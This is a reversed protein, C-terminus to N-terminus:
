LRSFYLSLRPFFVFFSLFFFSHFPLVLFISHISFILLSYVDSILFFSIFRWFLRGVWVFFTRYYYTVSIVNVLCSIWTNRDSQRTFGDESAQSDSPTASASPEEEPIGADNHAENGDDINGTNTTLETSLSVTSSGSDAYTSEHQSQQSATTSCIGSDVVATEVASMLESDTCESQENADLAENSNNNESCDAALLESDTCDVDINQVINEENKEITKTDNHDTNQSHSLTTPQKSVFSAFYANPTPSGFCFLINFSYCSFM